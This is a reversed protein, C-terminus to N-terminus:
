FQTLLKEIYFLYLIFVNKFIHIYNNTNRPEESFITAVSASLVVAVICVFLDSIENEM